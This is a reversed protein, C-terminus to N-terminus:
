VDFARIPPIPDALVASHANRDGRTVSTARPGSVASLKVTPCYSFRVCCDTRFVNHYLAIGPLTLSTAKASEDEAVGSSGSEANQM